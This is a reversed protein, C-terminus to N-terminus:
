RHETANKEGRRKLFEFYRLIFIFMILTAFAFWLTSKDDSAKFELTLSRPIVVTSEESLVKATCTEKRCFHSIMIKDKMSMSALRAQHIFPYIEQNFWLVAASKGELSVTNRPSSLCGPGSGLILNSRCAIYKNAM